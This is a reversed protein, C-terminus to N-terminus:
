TSLSIYDLVIYDEGFILSFIRKLKCHNQSHSQYKVSHMQEDCTDLFIFKDLSYGHLSYIMSKNSLSFIELYINGLIFCLCDRDAVLYILWSYCSHVLVHFSMYLFLFHEFPM